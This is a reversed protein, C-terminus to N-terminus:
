LFIIIKREFFSDNTRLLYIVGFNDSYDLHLDISLILFTIV